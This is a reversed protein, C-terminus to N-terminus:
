DEKIRLGARDGTRLDRLEQLLLADRDGEAAPVDPVRHRRPAERLEENHLVEVGVARASEALVHLPRRFPAEPNTRARENLTSSCEKLASAKSHVNGGHRGPFM